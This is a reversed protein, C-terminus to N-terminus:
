CAPGTRARPAAPAPMCKSIPRSPTPKGLRPAELERRAAEAKLRKLAEEAETITTQDKETEGLEIM